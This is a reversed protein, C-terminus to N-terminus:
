RKKAQKTNTQKAKGVKSTSQKSNALKSTAQKSNNGKANNQKSNAQKSTTLESTDAQTEVDPLQISLTQTSTNRKEKVLIKNSLLNFQSLTTMLEQGFQNILTHHDGSVQSLLSTLQAHTSKFFQKDEGITFGALEFAMSLGDITQHRSRVFFHPENSKDNETENQLTDESITNITRSSKVYSSRKKKRKRLKMMLTKPDYANLVKEGNEKPKESEPVEEPVPDEIQIIDENKLRGVIYKRPINNLPSEKNYNLLEDGFACDAYLVSKLITKNSNQIRILDIQSNILERYKDLLNAYYSSVNRETAILARLQFTMDNNENIVNDLKIQVKRLQSLMKENDQKLKEFRTVAADPQPKETLDSSEPENPTLKAIDTQLKDIQKETLKVIEQLSKLKEAPREPNIFHESNETELTKGLESIDIDNPDIKFCNDTCFDDFSKIKEDQEEEHHEYDNYIFKKFEPIQSYLSDFTNRYALVFLRVLSPLLHGFNRRRVFADNMHLVEEKKLMKNEVELDHLYNILNAVSGYQKIVDEASERSEEINNLRKQYLHVVEETRRLNLDILRFVKKVDPSEEEAFIDDILNPLSLQQHEELLKEKEAISNKLNNISYKDSSQHYTRYFASNELLNKKDEEVQIEQKKYNNLESEKKYNFNSWKSLKDDEIQWLKQVQSIIENKDRLSASTIAKNILNLIMKTEHSSPGNKTNKQKKM